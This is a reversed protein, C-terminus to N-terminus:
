REVSPSPSPSPSPLKLFCKKQYEEPLRDGKIYNLYNDNCYKKIEPICKQEYEPLSEDKKYYCYEKIEKIESYNKNEELFMQKDDDSFELEIENDSNDWVSFALEEKFWKLAQELELQEKEKDDDNDIGYFFDSKRYDNIRILSIINQLFKFTKINKEITEYKEITLNLKNLLYKIKDDNINNINKDIADKLLNYLYFSFLFPKNKNTTKRLKHTKPDLQHFDTKKIIGIVEENVEENVEEVYPFNNETKIVGKKLVEQKKKLDQEIWYVKKGINNGLNLIVFQTQGELKYLINNEDFNTGFKKIYEDDFINSDLFDDMVIKQLNDYYVKFINLDFGEALPDLALTPDKQETTSTTTDSTTTDSTGTTDGEGGKRMTKRFKPNYSLARLLRIQKMANKKTSCRAKVKGKTNTVRYCSKKPVKRMTFPM